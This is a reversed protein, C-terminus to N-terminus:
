FTTWVRADGAICGGGSKHILATFKVADFVDDISDGVALVFCASLQGLERGANMLTPSNPLFELNTMLAYFTEALEGTDAAPNFLTEAGAIVRAVRHFMDAPTEIPEGQANKKLYRKKLVTLANSTLSPVVASAVSSPM